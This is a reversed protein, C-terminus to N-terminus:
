AEVKPMNEDNKNEKKFLRFVFKVVEDVIIVTFSLAIIKIWEMVSLPVANFFDRFIQTFFIQAVATIGIIQLALKNKTLNPIISDFNFERCNFANFLASFAFIGFMVTEGKAEPVNLINTSSQLMLILTIYLANGIITFIMSKTIINEENESSFINLSNEIISLVQDMYLDINPLEDFRPLHFDLIEKIYHSDKFDM